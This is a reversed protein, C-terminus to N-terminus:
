RGLSFCSLSCAGILEIVGFLFSINEFFKSVNAIVSRDFGYSFAFEYTAAGYLSTDVIIPLHAPNNAM